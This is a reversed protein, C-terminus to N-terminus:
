SNPSKDDDKRGLAIKKNIEALRKNYTSFSKEYIKKDLIKQIFYDNQLKKILALLDQKQVELTKGTAAIKFFKVETNKLKIIE